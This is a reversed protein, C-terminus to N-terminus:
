ATTVEAILPIVLSAKGEVNEIRCNIVDVGDDVLNKAVSFLVQDTGKEIFRVVVRRGEHRVVKVDEISIKEM